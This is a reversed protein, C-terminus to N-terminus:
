AAGQREDYVKIGYNAASSILFEIWESFQKKGMKSTRAGLMVFGGNLGQAMRTEQQFAATLIDKWEDPTLRQKVGNVPWELQKSFADLYPWQAANQDLTRTEDQITVFHGDPARM